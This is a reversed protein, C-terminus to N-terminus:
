HLVEIKKDKYKQLSLIRCFFNFFDRPAKKNKRAHKSLFDRVAATISYDAGYNRKLNDWHKVIWVYMDAPTRKPFVPRMNEEQIIQIIPSYVNNYWSLLADSFDIEVNQRQNMYYKHVLIHEYIVDYRGTRSFDLSYDNTLEGFRTKEFFIQKEYKIVAERLELQSMSPEIPIESSLSIVEADIYEMGQAKAVSVRHNGDRVFYVGGIEYLQIPPLITNTLHAEDVRQWRRRLYESRPFFFKNFDLYRGESGVILKIQIERMGWYVETKPKLIEKVNNFSLLKDRDVNMFNQIRSILARVRARSFDEAAQIKVMENMISMEMDVVFHSYANIVITNHYVSIREEASDYLHIHGHILYKPKFVKMFWLFARFGRHCLDIQDHIGHPPAHTLLVDLARGYRIVNFLLRPALGLIRLNMEFNSFQNKGGNYRMSGGLGAILMNGERIVRGGAYVTGLGPINKRAATMSFIDFVGSNKYYYFQHLNHNGFVFFLPKNLSSVIFELYELPLDGASLVVDIGAFRQKIFDSYVLPDIM